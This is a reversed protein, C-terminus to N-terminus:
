GRDERARGRDGRERHGEYRRKGDQKRVGREEKHQRRDSYEDEAKQAENKAYTFAQATVALIGEETNRSSDIEIRGQGALFISINRRTEGDQGKMGIFISFRPKGLALKSVEGVVGSPHEFRQVVEWKKQAQQRESM